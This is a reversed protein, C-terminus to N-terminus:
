ATLFLGWVFNVTAHVVAAATIKGTKRWTWGYALGALTAMAVYMWNPAPYGSTSNNLHALGFIFAGIALAVWENKIRDHLQNQIIGRFLLEEPLATFLYGLPWALIWTSVDFEAINFILFRTLLGIPIGILTYAMLGINIKKFDKKSLRFTYGINPLPRIVLYLLLFLLVGTLIAGPLRVGEALHIDADPLWGFEIPFWVALIAVIDLPHLSKAKAPRLLTALTPIAIFLSMKGLNTLFSSINANATPLALLLFPVIHLAALLAAHGKSHAFQRITKRFRGNAYAFYPVILLLFAIWSLMM